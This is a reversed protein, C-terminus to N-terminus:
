KEPVLVRVQWPAMPVGKLTKESFIDGSLEDRWPGKPNKLTDRITLSSKVPQPNLSILPVAVQGDAVGRRLCAFVGGTAEVAAYDASGERLAPLRKRLANIRGLFEISAAGSEKYIAPDEDGQYIMPVGDILACLAMLARMGETGYLAQPRKKQFTWSVTDHNSIWRMKLGGRPLSLRQDNLFIELARAWEEPAANRDKLDMFLFYLQADYTLDSVRYFINAGTYEEPLLVVQPHVRLYGERVARNMGLGGALSSLSPRDPMVDRNWNLPGGAGCDVRAGVAKFERAGWEAAKGMMAQWGPHANDFAIQGWEFHVKGDADHAAFEPHERALQSEEPPGHPVLDFMLRMGNKSLEASLRKLEEPTGYLPSVRFPDSPAYLNWRKGDGHEWIPLLWVLDVGMRRLTPISERVANFGGFERYDLEPVGGPHGCYLVMGKLGTLGRDPARLGIDEYVAQVGQIVADRSGGALWFYQRGLTLASGPKLRAVVGQTHLIELGNRMRRVSVPSFEEECHYWSGLGTRSATDWLIVLPEQSRPTISEGEQLPRMPQDGWPLSGPFAVGQGEGACLAPTLSIVSEVRIEHDSVNSLTLQRDFRADGAALRYDMAYELGGARATMRLRHVGSANGQVHGTLTSPIASVGGMASALGIMVPGAIGGEGSGNVVKVLIENTRGRQSLSSDFLYFRPAEWHHPTDLGTSGVCRGNIYTSDFDDVAGLAVALPGEPFDAPVFFSRRYWFEGVRNFLRDDGTGRLGPVQTSEWAVADTKGSVLLRGEALSVTKPTYLWSGALSIASGNSAARFAAATDLKPMPSPAVGSRPSVGVVWEHGTRIDKLSKWAGSGPDFELRVVGNELVLPAEAALCAAFGQILLFGAAIGCALKRTSGLHHKM